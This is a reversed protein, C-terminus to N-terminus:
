ALAKTLFIFNYKELFIRLNNYDIDNTKSYHNETQINNNNGNIQKQEDINTISNLDNDNEVEFMSKIMNIKEITVGSHNLLSRNNTLWEYFTRTDKIPECLQKRWRRRRHQIDHTTTEKIYTKFLKYIYSITGFSINYDTGSLICLQRFEDIDLGLVSLIKSTNYLLAKNNIMSLYRIVNPCGYVFMDMDDSICGWAKGKLVYIACMRDAEGDATIWEVDFYNLMRQVEKIEDRYIRVCQKKYTNLITNQRLDHESEGSDILKKRLLKYKEKAETKKERRVELLANKETPPKGDFIFIPNAKYHLLSSVMYFMGEILSEEKAYKYMYISTDIVVTKGTLFKMDITTIADACHEQIFKNLMHIGM